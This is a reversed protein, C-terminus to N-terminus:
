TGDALVGISAFKGSRLEVPGRRCTKCPTNDIIQPLSVRPVKSANDSVYANSNAKTTMNADFKGLSNNSPQMPKKRIVIIPESVLNADIFIVLAVTTWGNQKKQTKVM